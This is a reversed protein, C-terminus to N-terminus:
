EDQINSLVDMVNESYKLTLKAATNPDTKPFIKKYDASKRYEKMRNLDFAIKSYESNENKFLNFLKIIEKHSERTAGSTDVEFEEKAFNRATNFAAYYARGIASRYAAEPTIDAIDEYNEHLYKAITHFERWNFM